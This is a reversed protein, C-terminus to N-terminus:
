AILAAKVQESLVSIFYIDLGVFYDNYKEEFYNMLKIMLKSM